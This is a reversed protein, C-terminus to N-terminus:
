YIGEPAQGELRGKLRPAAVGLPFLTISGKFRSIVNVAQWDAILGAAWLGSASGELDDERVSNRM